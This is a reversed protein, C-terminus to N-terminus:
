KPNECKRTLRQGVYGVLHLGVLAAVGLLITHDMAATRCQAIGSLEAKFVCLILGICDVVVFLVFSLLFVLTGLLAGWIIIDSLIIKTNENM